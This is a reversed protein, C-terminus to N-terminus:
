IKRNVYQEVWRTFGVIDGAYNKWVYEAVATPIPPRESAIPRAYLPIPAPRMGVPISDFMGVVEGSVGVYGYAVPPEDFHRGGLWFFYREDNPEVGYQACFDLFSSDM